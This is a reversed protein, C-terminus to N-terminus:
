KEFEPVNSLTVSNRTLRYAEILAGAAPGFKPPGVQAGDGLEVIMRFRELLLGSKFVGGVYAVFAPEDEDFIQTRVASTFMALEQAANFLINRAVLDGDAAAEDVLKSMAAIQPRPYEPTYFSHM